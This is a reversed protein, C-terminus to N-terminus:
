VQKYYTEYNFHRRQCENGRCPSEVPWRSFLFVFHVGYFTITVSTAVLAVTTHAARLVATNHGRHKFWVLRHFFNRAFGGSLTISIYLLTSKYLRRCIHVSHKHVLKSHWNNSCKSSTNVTWTEIFNSGVLVKVLFKVRSYRFLM